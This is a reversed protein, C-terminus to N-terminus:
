PISLVPAPPWPTERGGGDWPAGDLSPIDRLAQRYASVVALAEESLPYDPLALYDTAALRPDRESCISASLNSQQCPLEPAPPAAAWQEPTLYGDPCVSWVEPNGGPSIFTLM